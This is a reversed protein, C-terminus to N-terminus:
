SSRVDVVKWNHIDPYSTLMEEKLKQFTEFRSASDADLVLEIEVSQSKKNDSDTMTSSFRGLGCVDTMQCYAFTAPGCIGVATVSKDENQVFKSVYLKLNLDFNMEM